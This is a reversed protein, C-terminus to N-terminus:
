KKRAILNFAAEGLDGTIKWEKEVQAFDIGTAINIAKLIIRAAVGSKRQDWLQFLRGQLLLVVAEIDEHDLTKLFKSIKDTKELRKPSDELEQYLRALKSYLM